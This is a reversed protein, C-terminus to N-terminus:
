QSSLQGIKEMIKSATKIVGPEGNFQPPVFHSVVKRIDLSMLVKSSEPLSMLNNISMLAIKKPGLLTDNVVVNMLQYIAGTRVFEHDLQASNRV